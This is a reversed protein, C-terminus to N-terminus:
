GRGRLFPNTQTTSQQGGTRLFPNTQASSRQGSARLFPNTQATVSGSTRLFPNSATGRLFPNGGSSAAYGGSYGNHWPAQGITSQAWGEAYYLADKQAYTLDLSNIAQMKEAKRTMGSSAVKYRYFQEPTISADTELEAQQELTKDSAMDAFYIEAQASLTMGSNQLFEFKQTAASKEGTAKIGKTGFYYTYFEDYSVGNTKASKAREYVDKNYTQLAYEAGFCEKNAARYADDTEMGQRLYKEAAARYTEEVALANKQIGTVVAKLERTKQRKEKDSLDSAEVERIEKWLDSCASQQKSWFRSVVAATEDGGNKAYTLEDAEDFFDGSVRNNTVVDTTFAKAFMGREAQPTLLPLLFDGVVGTYQDLVYNLKKPSIGLAGGVAKSFVDTSSDYRQGPAYSQLRQSEIDGGYWTRGPSDPDLLASDVLASAINTTLPNAPAVQNGMTNLTAIIDVDKGQVADAVRDATIGLLSLERGKPIKLWIGDKLKFMYNTDKDSDRLDDWEEDDHYLLANILTPAIGLLAARGILKAWERGGRTETVRRILKDFGQIGPNLFPVYNANLVKGLTGSRGFNVTVDAAAYLADALTESNVGGKEVVSMFEALRPAQETAMNLSELRAMLRAARGAPEKVTGTAYDFVSSYSGGLAKYMQWYEGNNRIEALARPYNRLFARGDRTYLGATQLDRVTNRLLFTPNYGTVLSKFLNNSARIVKTVTNSEMADPSLAKLADFLTDDVTLEWLKGDRFVTFVKDKALPQNSVDNLTDPDFDSGDFEQADQIYRNVASSEGARIYDDLMRQGFRNKSGERVVKMTQKGLAEHLPVLQETGGRARGVTRGVRVANRDRGAGASGDTVRLTPVYNPYFRRLFEANEQTMLGSDVRYQMLNDIYTRVQQQYRAFEPHERLARRARERSVEATVDYSFVPKDRIADARDVARLLQLRERAMEAIDPDPDETLRRLQAETDTRVEPHDADFDRLAARAELMAQDKNQSLSMRDINHLDYMYMQFSHYYDEGRQRIPTFIDNLSAGVRQANVNTQADAIMSVGASASARAQNYFQYLYPDNVAESVKSVSHGADVMKRYIYSWTERAKERASKRVPATHDTVMSETDRIRDERTGIPDAQDAYLRTLDDLDAQTVQEATREPPAERRELRRLREDYIADSVTYPDDGIINEDRALREMYTNREAADQATVPETVRESPATRDSGGYLGQWSIVDEAAADGADRRFLGNEQTVRGTDVGRWTDADEGAMEDISRGTSYRIDPDGTPAANDVRKVQKPDLAIYADTERGWSGADKAIIVGDYGSKRLAATIAEKAQLAVADKAKGWEEVITDEADFVKNFGDVDYLASRPADPNQRRWETIFNVFDEKAKEFKKSYERDIAASRAKVEEYEPSLKKLNSVLDGRDQVRLPNKIDAYLEMQRAGKVGINQPTSKLFVGFPTEDDGTGAGKHRTDFVTFEGDTQHYLVKLRGDADRAQSDRFYEQQQASLRRGESDEGAMEEISRGTSLQERKVNLANRLIDTTYLESNTTDSGRHTKLHETGRIDLEKETIADHLYLRQTQPDRQLMVATYMKEASTGVTVPAAVIIRELGSNNKSITYIVKGHKIVDPVAAFTVVKVPTMGHRFESNISSKGLSVDGFQESYVNNGISDFFVKVREDLPTSRDGLENGTFHGVPEMTQLAVSNEQIEKETYQPYKIEYGVGGDAFVTAENGLDPSLQRRQEPTYGRRNAADRAEIEGATNRYLELTNANKFYDTRARRDFDAQTYDSYMDAYPGNYLSEELRLVEDWDQALKARNIQRVTEQVAPPMADMAEHMRNEAEAFRRDSVYGQGDKNKYKWYNPSSGGTFEETGQIVHQIEHVLTREPSGILDKSLVIADMTKDYYGGIGPMTEKFVVSTHRLAPYAEFLDSHRLFDALEYKESWARDYYESELKESEALEEATLPEGQDQANQAWKDTLEQLRRYGSEEMLRADGDRRYEMGSDDIEFRWKGDMGRFWGTERRITRADTGDAEMQAARTLADLDATRANEGAYLLQTGSDQTGAEAQRLAREYLNQADILRRQERTGQLKAVTDRIWDYVRQFLNRDRALLRRVTEEDTFLKEEAFKAVIERTAGDEDLAVGARAYDAMVARRLTDVDAGMDEAVFQLAADSFRSYLGSSEMHHTLEHILVQRVPDVATTAISIVGDQYSGQVGDAMTRAQVVAGFRRAIDAAMEFQMQKEQPMQELAQRWAARQAADMGNADVLRPLRAYEAGSRMDQTNVGQINQSVSPDYISVNDRFFINPAHRGGTPSPTDMRKISTIEEPEIYYAVNQPNQGSGKDVVKVKIDAYYPTGDIYFSTRLTDFGNIQIRGKRDGKSEAWYSGDIAKELNDVLLIRELELPEHGKTYLMKNLSAKTVDVYYERGDKTINSAALYAPKGDAIGLRRIANEKVQNRYQNGYIISIDAGTPNYPASSMELRGVRPNEINQPVVGRYATGQGEEATSTEGGKYRYTDPSVLSGAVGSMGGVIFSQLSDALNDEVSEVDGGYIRPMQWEAWQAVLEEFGEGAGSATMQLVANLARKGAETKGLKSVAKQIGRQVVDDLAGGGYAKAFPLAVNSILETAVEVSGIGAGYAIQGALDGGGERAEMAAGGFARTAFPIMAGPLRKEVVNGMLAYGGNLRTPRLGLIASAAADIGSQTMSAGADIANQWFKSVGTKAAEIDRNASEQVDAALDRAAEGARQQVGTGQAPQVNGLSNYLENLDATGFRAAADYAADLAQEYAGDGLVTAFARMKTLANDLESKAAPSRDTDYAYKARAVAWQADRLEETNRQTRGGQGAQYAVGMADMNGALSGKAGGSVTKGARALFGQLPKKDAGYAGAGFAAIDPLDDVTRQAKGKPTTVVPVQRKNSGTDSLMTGTNVLQRQANRAAMPKVIPTQAAKNGLTPTILKGGGKGDAMVVGSKTLTLPAQRKNSGTDSIMTGTNVLQGSRQANRAAMPKVIPTQAAKPGLTPTILKGGGKGDAMVVGSKTLTLPAKLEAKQAAPLSASQVGAKKQTQKNKKNWDDLFNM